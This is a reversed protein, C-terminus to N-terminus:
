QHMLLVKRTDSLLRTIMKAKRVAAEMMSDNNSGYSYDARLEFSKKIIRM